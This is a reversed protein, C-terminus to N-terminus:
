YPAVLYSTASAKSWRPGPGKVFFVEESSFCHRAWTRFAVPYTPFAMTSRRLTSALSNLLILTTSTAIVLFFPYSNPMAWGATKTTSSSPVTRSLQAMLGLM